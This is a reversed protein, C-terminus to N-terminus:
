AYTKEFIIKGETLLLEILNYNDSDFETYYEKLFGILKGDEDFENDTENGDTFSVSYNDTWNTFGNGFYYEMADAILYIDGYNQEKYSYGTGTLEEQFKDQQTQWDADQWEQSKLLEDAKELRYNEIFEQRAEGNAFELIYNGTTQDKKLTLM